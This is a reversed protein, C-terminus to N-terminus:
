YIPLNVEESAYAVLKPLYEAEKRRFDLDKKRDGVLEGLKQKRAALM